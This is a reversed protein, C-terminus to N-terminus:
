GRLWRQKDVIIKIREAMEYSRIKSLRIWLEMFNLTNKNQHKQVIIEGWMNTRECRWHQIVVEVLPGSLIQAVRAEILIWRPQSFQERPNSLSRVSFLYQVYLHKLLICNTFPNWISKFCDFCLMVNGFNLYFICEPRFEKKSCMSKLYIRWFNYDFYINWKVDDELAPLITGFDPLVNGFLLLFLTKDPKRQQETQLFAISFTLHHNFSLRKIATM